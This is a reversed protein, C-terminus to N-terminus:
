RSYKRWMERDQQRQKIQFEWVTELKYAYFQFWDSQCPICKSQYRASEYLIHAMQYKKM